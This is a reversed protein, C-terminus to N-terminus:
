IFATWVRPGSLKYPLVQSLNQNTDTMELNAGPSWHLHLISLYSEAIGHWVSWVDVSGM